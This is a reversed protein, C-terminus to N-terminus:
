VLRHVLLKQFVGMGAVNDPADEKLSVWNYLDPDSNCLLEDYEGLEAVTFDPVHAAAFSGMVLDMEKIGRHGSRFILRRRKNEIDEDAKGIQEM